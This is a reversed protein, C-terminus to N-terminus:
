RLRSWFYSEGCHLNLDGEFWTGLWRTVGGEVGGSHVEFRELVDLESGELPGEDPCTDFHRDWLPEFSLNPWPGAEREFESDADDVRWPGDIAVIASFDADDQDIQSLTDDFDCFALPNCLQDDCRNDLCLDHM